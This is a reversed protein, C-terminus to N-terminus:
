INISNSDDAQIDESIYALHEKMLRSAENDKKEKIADIIKRHFIIAQDVIENSGKQFANFIGKKFTDSAMEMTKSFLWNGTLYALKVHFLMDYNTLECLNDRNDIMKALLYDLYIVDSATARQAALRANESEFVTRFEMLDAFDSMAMATAFSMNSLQEEMKRVVTGQKNRTILGNTELAKYAERLTGRCVGLKECFITESPFRFGEPLEQKIILQELNEALSAATKKGTPRAKDALEELDMEKM